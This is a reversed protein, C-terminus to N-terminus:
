HAATHNSVHNNVEISTNDAQKTHKGQGGQPHYSASSYENAQVTRNMPRSQGYHLHSFFFSAYERNRHHSCCGPCDLTFSLYDQATLCSAPRDLILHHQVAWSLSACVTMKGLNAVLQGLPMCNCEKHTTPIACVRRLLNLSKASVPLSAMTTTQPCNYHPLTISPLPKPM